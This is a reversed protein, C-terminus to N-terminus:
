RERPPGGPGRPPSLRQALPGILAGGLILVGVGLPAWAYGEGAAVFLAWALAIVGAAAFPLSQASGAGSIPTRVWRWAPAPLRRALALAGYVVLTGGAASALLTGAVVGAPRRAFSVSLYGIVCVVVLAWAILLAARNEEGAPREMLPPRGAGTLPRRPDSSRGTAATPVRSLLAAGALAFGVAVLPVLRLAWEPLGWTEVPLFLIAPLAMVCVIGLCGTLTGRDFRNPLPPEGLSPQRAPRAEPEDASRM